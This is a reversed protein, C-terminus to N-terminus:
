SKENKEYLFCISKFNYKIRNAVRGVMCGVYCTDKEYDELKDSGLVVDVLNGSRDPVKLTKIIAGYTIVEMEIQGSKLTYLDVEQGNESFGFSNRTAM